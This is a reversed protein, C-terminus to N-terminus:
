TSTGDVVFGVGQALDGTLVEGRAPRLRDGADLV